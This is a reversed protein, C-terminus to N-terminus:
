EMRGDRDLADPIQEGGVFEPEHVRSGAAPEAIPEGASGRRHVQSIEAILPDVRVQLARVNILVVERQLALQDALHPQAHTVDSRRHPFQQHILVM